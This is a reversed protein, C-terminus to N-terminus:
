VTVSQLSAIVTQAVAKVQKRLDPVAFTEWYTGKIVCGTAFVTDSPQDNNKICAYKENVKLGWDIDDAIAHGGDILSRILPETSHQYTEQPGTCNFFYNINNITKPGEATTLNITLLPGAADVSNVAGKIFELKGQAIAKSIVAHVEEAIRHRRVNWFAKYHQLFYKKEGLTWTNWIQQTLPRFKDAALFAPRGEDKYRNEWHEYLKVLDTLRWSTLDNPTFFETQVHNGHSKPLYGNRSNFYIKGKFNNNLLSLVMDVMTLGSGLIFADGGKDEFTEEWRSWPNGIYASHKELAEGAFPLASPAFHGLALLVKSVSLAGNSLTSITVQENKSEIGVAKDNLLTVKHIGQVQIKDSFNQWISELYEGYVKRPVFLMKLESEEKGQYDPHQKLWNVFHGLDDPFASMGMARVNLLLWPANTGYALGKPFDSGKNIIYIHLPQQAQETLHIASLLGSFGGGIIGIAEM